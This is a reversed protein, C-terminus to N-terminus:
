FKSFYNMMELDRLGAFVGDGRWRVGGGGKKASAFFKFVWCFTSIIQSTQDFCAFPTKNLIVGNMSSYGYQRECSSSDISACIM